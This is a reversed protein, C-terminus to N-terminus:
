QEVELALMGTDLPRHQRREPVDGILAEVDSRLAALTADALRYDPIVFGNEHYSAVQEATLM